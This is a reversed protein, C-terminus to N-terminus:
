RSWNSDFRVAEGPQVMHHEVTLAPRRKADSAAWGAEIQPM